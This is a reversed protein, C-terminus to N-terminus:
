RKNVNWKANRIANDLDEQMSVKCYFFTQREEKNQLRIRKSDLENVYLRKKEQKYDESILNM